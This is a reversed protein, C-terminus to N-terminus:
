NLSRKMFVFEADPPWEIDPYGEAEGIWLTKGDRVMTLIQYVVDVACSPSDSKYTIPRMGMKLLERDPQDMYALRLALCAEAPILRIPSGFTLVRKCISTMCASNNFGLQMVSIRALAIQRPERMFQIRPLLMEEVHSEIRCGATDLMQRYQQLTKPGGIEVEKFTPYTM